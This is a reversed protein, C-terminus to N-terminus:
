TMWFSRMDNEEPSAAPGFLLCAFVNGDPLRVALCTLFVQEGRIHKLLKAQAAARGPLCRSSAM